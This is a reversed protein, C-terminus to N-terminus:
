VDGTRWCTIATVTQVHKRAFVKTLAHILGDHEHQGSSGFATVALWSVVFVIQMGSSGPSRSVFYASSVRVRGSPCFKLPGIVTTFQFVARFKCM